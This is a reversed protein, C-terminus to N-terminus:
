RDHDKEHKNGNESQDPIKPLLKKHDEKGVNLSANFTFIDCKVEFIRNLEKVVELIRERAYGLKALTYVVYSIMESETVCNVTEKQKKRM